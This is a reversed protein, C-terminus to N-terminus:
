APKPSTKELRYDRLILFIACALFVTNAVGLGVGVSIGADIKNSILLFTAIIQSGVTVISLNVPQWMRRRAYFYKGIVENVSQFMFTLTCIRAILIIYDRNGQGRGFIEFFYMIIPIGVFTIATGVIGIYLAGKSYRFLKRWFDSNKEPIESLVHTLDPFFVTAFSSIVVFFISQISLAIDFATIQGPRGDGVLNILQNAAVSSNIIFIRPILVRWTGLIESKYQDYYYLPSLFVEKRSQFGVKLADWWYLLGTFAAGAMMGVAAQIYGNHGAVLVGIITGLNYLVGAWSYVTFRKSINLFVGLLSQAAFLFPGLLLIRTTTVYADLLGAQKFATIYETSTSLEVLQYSFIFCLAVIVGLISVVMVSMITLYESLEKTSNKKKISTAVPLLSSLITGMILLSTITDPVKTAALLLDSYISDMRQYILIQRAFGFTKSLFLFVTLILVSRGNPSTLFVKLRSLMNVFKPCLYM